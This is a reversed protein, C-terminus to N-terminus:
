SDAPIIRGDIMSVVRDARAVLREDHTVALVAAGDQSCKAMLDIVVRANDEDQHATPEDAILLRPSAAVARAVAVRQQEGMSLQEAPRDRLEAMGLASLTGPTDAAVGGLWVPLEVNEAATLEPLLGLGQPVVAISRWGARMGDAVLVEGEDPQDWGLVVNVLTTKGSGSPGVVVVFEGAAVEFSVNRLAHVVEPGRVHRKGVSVLRVISNM